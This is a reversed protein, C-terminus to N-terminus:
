GVNWAASRRKRWTSATLASAAQSAGCMCPSKNGATTSSASKVRSTQTRQSARSTAESYAKRSHSLVLRFVYTKRRKGEPTLVPAGTGFDVQGEEGPGCEMRRFPLPMGAGLRRVFRKVSDYGGAFGQETVLDQWIRQASLQQDLKAQILARYPECQGPRGRPSARGAAASPTARNEGESGAPSIAANPASASDAFESGAAQVAGPAPLPSFAAANSGASGTPPIAANPDPRPPRLYRAVTGRDIALKRAIRRRSWGAAHLHQISQVIAMKLVNAM